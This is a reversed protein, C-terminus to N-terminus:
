EEILYYFSSYLLIALPSTKHKIELYLLKDTKKKLTLPNQEYPYTLGM